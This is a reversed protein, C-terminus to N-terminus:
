RTVPELAHTTCPATAPGKADKQLDRRFALLAEPTADRIYRMLHAGTPPHEGSELYQIARLSVGIREGFETQTWQGDMRVRYGFARFALVDQGQM